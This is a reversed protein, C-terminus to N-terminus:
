DSSTITADSFAEESFAITKESGPPRQALIIRIGYSENGWRRIAEV